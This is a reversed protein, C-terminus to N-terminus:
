SAVSSSGTTSGDAMGCSSSLPALPMATPMAVLMGGWLKPSTTRANSAIISSGCTVVAPSSRWTLPGSKGVPPSIRVGLRSNRAM